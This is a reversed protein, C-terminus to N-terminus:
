AQSSSSPDPEVIVTLGDTSVVRVPVGRELPRGDVTRASWEEGAVYVSGLPEISRRVVGAVGPSLAAASGVMDAPAPMERSRIAFTVILVLFIGATVTMTAIIPM